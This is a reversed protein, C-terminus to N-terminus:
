TLVYCLNEEQYSSPCTAMLKLPLSSASVIVQSSVRLLVTWVPNGTPVNTRITKHGVSTSLGLGSHAADNRLCADQLTYSCLPVSNLCPLLCVSTETQEQRHSHLSRSNGIAAKIDGCHHTVGPSTLLCLGERGHQKKDTYKRVAASIVTPCSTM